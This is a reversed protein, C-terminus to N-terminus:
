RLLPDLRGSLARSMRAKGEAFKVEDRWATWTFAAENPGFEEARVANRERARRQTHRDALLQTLRQNAVGRNVHQSRDETATVVLGTPLHTLRVGSAVKNRHQGGPGSARFTDVRVEDPRWLM